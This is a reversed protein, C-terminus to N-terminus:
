LEIERNKKENGWNCEKEAPCAFCNRSKKDCEYLLRELTTMDERERRHGRIATLIEEKEEATYCFGEPLTDLIEEAIRAGAIEHPIHERYQLSKGIDHLIAATYLLEKDIKLDEELNRIYAIRAVDLLHEMQHCCFIRTREAEKLDEYYQIYLPHRVIANLREMM